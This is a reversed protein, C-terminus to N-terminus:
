PYLFITIVKQGMLLVLPSIINEYNKNYKKFVQKLELIHSNTLTNMLQCAHDKNPPDIEYEEFFNKRKHEISRIMDSNDAEILKKERGLFYLRIFIHTKVAESTKKCTMALRPLSNIDVFFLMYKILVDQPIDNFNVPSTKRVKTINSMLQMKNLEKQIMGKNEPKNEIISTEEKITGLQSNGQIGSLINSMDQSENKQKTLIKIVENFM